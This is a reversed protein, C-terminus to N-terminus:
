SRTPYPTIITCHNFFLFPHQMTNINNFTHTLNVGIEIIQCRWINNAIIWNNFVHPKDINHLSTLSSKMITLWQISNLIWSNLITFYIKHINELFTVLTELQCVKGHKHGFTIPHSKHFCVNSQTYGLNSTALFFCSISIMGEFWVRCSAFFLTPTIPLAIM